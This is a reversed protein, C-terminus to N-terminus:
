RLEAAANTGMTQGLREVPDYAVTVGGPGSLMRNESSYTYLSAGSSTLYLKPTIALTVTIRRVHTPEAIGALGPQRLDAEVIVLGADVAGREAPEHLRVGDSILIPDVPIIIHTPVRNIPAIRRPFIRVNRYSSFSRTVRTV